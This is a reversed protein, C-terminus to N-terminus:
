KDDNGHESELNEKNVNNLKKQNKYRILNM